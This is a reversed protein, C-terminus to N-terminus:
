DEGLELRTQGTVPRDKCGGGRRAPKSLQSKEPM